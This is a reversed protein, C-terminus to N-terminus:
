KKSGNDPTTKRRKHTSTSDVEAPRWANQLTAQGNRRTWAIVQDRHHRQQNRTGAADIAACALSTMGIM